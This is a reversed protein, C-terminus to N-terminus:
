ALRTLQQRFLSLVIGYGLMVVLLHVFADLARAGDGPTPVGPKAGIVFGSIAVFGSSILFVGIWTHLWNVQSAAGHASIVHVLVMAVILAGRAVDIGAQRHTSPKTEASM